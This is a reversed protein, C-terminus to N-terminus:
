KSNAERFSTNLINVNFSFKHPVQVIEFVLFSYKHFIFSGKWKRGYALAKGAIPCTPCRRIAKGGRRAVFERTVTILLSFIVPFGVQLNTLQCDLPIGAVNGPSSDQKYNNLINTADYFRDHKRTLLKNVYFLENYFIM